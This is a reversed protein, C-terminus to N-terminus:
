RADPPGQACGHAHCGPSPSLTLEDGSTECVCDSPEAGLVAKLFTLTIHRRLLDALEQITRYAVAYRYSQNRFLVNSYGSGKCVAVIVTVVDSDHIELAGGLLQDPHAALEHAVQALGSEARAWADDNVPIRVRGKRSHPLQGRTSTRGASKRGTAVHGHMELVNEGFNKLVGETRRDFPVLAVM